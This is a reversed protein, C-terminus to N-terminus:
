NCLQSWSHRNSVYIGAAHIRNELCVRKKLGIRAALTIMYQKDNHVVPRALVNNVSYEDRCLYDIYGKANRNRVRAPKGYGIAPEAGKGKIAKRLKNHLGRPKRWGSRSLRIFRKHLYRRFKPTHCKIEKRKRLQDLCGESFPAYRTAYTFTKGHYETFYQYINRAVECSAKNAEAVAIIEEVTKGMYPTLLKTLM